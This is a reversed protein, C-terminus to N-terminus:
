NRTSATRTTHGVSSTSYSPGFSISPGVNTIEDECCRLLCTTTLTGSKTRCTTGTCRLKPCSLGLLSFITPSIRLSKISPITPGIRLSSPGNGIASLRRRVSYSIIINLLTLTVFLCSGGVVGFARGLAGGGLLLGMNSTNM